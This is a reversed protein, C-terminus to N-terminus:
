QLSLLLYCISLCCVFDVSLFSYKSPVIKRQTNNFRAGLVVWRWGAWKLSWGASQLVKLTILVLINCTCLCNRWIKSSFNSTTRKAQFNVCISDQFHQNRIWVQIKSIGDWFGKRPLNSGFSDFSDIKGSFQCVHYRPPPEESDPSLNEFNRGWFEKKAFKLRFLMGQNNENSLKSSNSM